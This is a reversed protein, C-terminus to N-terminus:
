RENGHKFHGTAKAMLLQLEQADAGRARELFSIAKQQSLVKIMKNEYYLLVKNDKTAKYSFPEELLRGRKDIGM